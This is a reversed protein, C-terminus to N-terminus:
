DLIVSSVLTVPAASVCRTSQRLFDMIWFNFLFLVILLFFDASTSLKMARADGKLVM